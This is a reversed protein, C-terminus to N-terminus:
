SKVHVIIIFIIAIAIYGLGVIVLHWAVKRKTKASQQYDYYTKPTKGDDTINRRVKRMTKFSYAIGDFTGEKTVYSLLGFCTLLIGPVAFADSLIRFIKAPDTTKFIGKLICIVLAITLGVVAAAVYKVWTLNTRKQQM